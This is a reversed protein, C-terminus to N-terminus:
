IFLGGPEEEPYDYKYTDTLGLFYRGLSPIDQRFYHDSMAKYFKRPRTLRM